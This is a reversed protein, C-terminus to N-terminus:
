NFNMACATAMQTRIAAVNYGLFTGVIEFVESDIWEFQREFTPNVIVWGSTDRLTLKNTVVLKEFLNITSKFVKSYVDMIDRDTWKIALKHEQLLYDQEFFIDWGMEEKCGHLIVDNDQHYRSLKANESGYSHTYEYLCKKLESRFEIADIGHTACTLEFSKSMYWRTEAELLPNVTINGFEDTTYLTKTFALHKVNELSEELAIVYLQYVDEPAWDFVLGGLEASYEELTFLYDTEAAFSIDHLIQNKLLKSCDSLLTVDESACPEPEPGSHKDELQTSQKTAIADNIYDIPSSVITIIENEEKEFDFISFFDMQKSSFATPMNKQKM